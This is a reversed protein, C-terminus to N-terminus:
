KVMTNQRGTGSGGGDVESGPNMRAGGGPGFKSGATPVFSTGFGPSLDPRSGIPTNTRSVRGDEVLKRLDGRKSGLAQRCPTCIRLCCWGCKWMQDSDEKCVMCLVPAVFNRSPALPRHKIYCDFHIQKLAMPPVPVRSQPILFNGENDLDTPYQFGRPSPLRAHKLDPLSKM